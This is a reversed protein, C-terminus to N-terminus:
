FSNLYFIRFSKGIKRNMMKIRAEQLRGMRCLVGSGATTAVRTAPVNFAAAVLATTSALAVL